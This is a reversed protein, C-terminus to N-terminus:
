APRGVTGPVQRRAPFPWKTGAKRQRQIHEGAPASSPFAFDYRGLDM